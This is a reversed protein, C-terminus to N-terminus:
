MAHPGVSVMRSVFGKLNNFAVLVCKVIFANEVLKCNKFRYLNDFINCQISTLKTYQTKHNIKTYKYYASLFM